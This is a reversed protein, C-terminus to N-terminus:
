RENVAALSEGYLLQEAEDLSDVVPAGCNLLRRKSNHGHSVLICSIGLASAVEYDHVTDGILVTSQRKAGLRKLLAHGSDIKGAAYIDELGSVESFYQQVKFGRLVEVLSTHMYASLVAQGIGRRQISGLVERAGPQLRCADKGGEYLEIFEAGIKEFSLREFDFGIKRYFHVVPFCLEERLHELSISPLAYRALLRNMMELCLQVDDLLTGNWDWVIQTHNNNYLLVVGLKSAGVSGERFM